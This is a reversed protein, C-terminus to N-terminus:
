HAVSPASDHLPALTADGRAKDRAVLVIRAGIKALALAAVEGIGSTGCTTVIANGRMVSKHKSIQNKRLLWPSM